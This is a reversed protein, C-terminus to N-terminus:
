AIMRSGLRNLANDRHHLFVLHRLPDLAARRVRQAAGVTGGNHAPGGTRARSRSVPASCPLEWRWRTPRTQSEAGLFRRVFSREFYCHTQTPACVAPNM